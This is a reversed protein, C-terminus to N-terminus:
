IYLIDSKKYQIPNNEQYAQNIKSFDVTISTIQSRATKLKRCQSINTGEGNIVYIDM